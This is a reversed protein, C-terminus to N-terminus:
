RDATLVSRVNVFFLGLLIYFLSISMQVCRVAFHQPHVCLVDLGRRTEEKFHQLVGVQDLAVVAHAPAQLWFFFYKSFVFNSFDSGQFAAARLSPRNCGGRACTRTFFINLFFSVGRGQFAVVVHAPAQLFLGLVRTFILDRKLVGPLSRVDIRLHRSYLRPSRM